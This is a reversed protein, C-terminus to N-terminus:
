GEAAKGSDPGSGVGSTDAVKVGGKRRDLFDNHVTVIHNAITVDVYQAILYRVGLSYIDAFGLSKRRASKEAKWHLETPREL